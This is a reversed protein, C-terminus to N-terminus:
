TSEIWTGDGDVFIKVYYRKSAAGSTAKYYIAYWANTPNRWGTLYGRTDEEAEGLYTTVEFGYQSTIRGVKEVDDREYDM